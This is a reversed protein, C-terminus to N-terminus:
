LLAVLVVVVVLAIVIAVTEGATMGPGPSGGSDDRVPERAAPADERPDAQAPRAGAPDRGAARPAPPSTPHDGRLAMVSRGDQISAAFAALRTQARGHAAGGMESASIPCREARGAGDRRNVALRVRWGFRVRIPLSV